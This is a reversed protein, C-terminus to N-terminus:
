RKEKKKLVAVLALTAAAGSAFPAVWRGGASEDDSVRQRWSLAPTAPGEARDDTLPRAARAAESTQAWAAAYLVVRSFYNIWVLLILATGFVQFAPQGRSMSVLLSSLQKLAEFGLAGLFAGSWLSGRPAIPDVLLRFMAFFLLTSVAIGILVAVVAVLWGLEGDLHLWDLVNESTRTLVGSVGVSAFLIAGLAVLTLLDRLKGLVFSPQLRTPEEFLVVLADRLSTLWGLGAYLVGFLGIIGVAGAREQVTELSIRGSGDGVLGPLVGDIAELLSEQADPYVRAVYGIAFFALALVPFISLFAFYTVGGAQQNGKVSGYHEVTRLVHDLGPHGERLDAIKQKISM